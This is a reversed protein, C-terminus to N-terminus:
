IRKKKMRNKRRNQNQKKVAQVPVFVGAVDQTFRREILIVANYTDVYDTIYRVTKNTQAYSYFLSISLLSAIATAILLEILTFGSRNMNM